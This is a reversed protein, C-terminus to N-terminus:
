DVRTRIYTDHQPPPTTILPSPQNGHFLYVGTGDEQGPGAQSAGRDAETGGEKTGTGRTEETGRATEPATGASSLLFRIIITWQIHILLHMNHEVYGPHVM